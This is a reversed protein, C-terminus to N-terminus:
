VKPSEPISLSEMSSHEGQQPLLEEKDSVTTTRRTVRSRHLTIMVLGTLVLVSIVALTGVLFFAPTWRDRKGVNGQPDQGQGGCMSMCDEHTEYRNNNGQCGGYIFSHCSATSPQYYFQPFAARCPGPEPGELCYEKYDKPETAFSKGKSKRPSPLVTVTCSVMCNEQSGYNNKNGRCGGYIFSQCTHTNSNYFWRPLAARCPGVEPEAGCRQAFDVESIEPLSVDSSRPVPSLSLPLCLPRSVSIFVSLSLCLSPCLSLPINDNTYDTVGQCATECEQLSKFNNGNNGCGGYIFSKCSQTTVDYYFRPFFAECFGVKKPRRCQYLSLCLCPEQLPRGTCSVMCNEQSGYNNKNGRCGGYIFSQCTHTNSNYFWRPLAARCPGVEPEAGCRETHRDTQTGTQRDTQRGTQTDTQRDTHREGPRYTQRETVDYSRWFRQTNGTVGQCATECEQLSKFNNGNNGCGGYIFSKCSQTTVDYYFRPFFAECFGVKKPRRCQDANTSNDESLSRADLSQPTETSNQPEQPETEVPTKKRYVKFQTSPQLLCVDRGDQLCSVLQCEPTGDAPTGIVALQCATESCCAKQCHEMDRVDSLVSLQRAGADLSRPDLGQATDMEWDWDCVQSSTSQFLVMVMVVWVGRLGM